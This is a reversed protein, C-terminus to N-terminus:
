KYLNLLLNLIQLEQLIKEYNPIINCLIAELILLFFILIFFVLYFYKESTSFMIRWTKDVNNNYKKFDMDFIKMNERNDSNYEEVKQTYLKRFIREQRLYYSDLYWFQIIVILLAIYIVTKIFIDFLAFILVLITTFITAFWAKMQFSNQGMRTIVNQIIQFYESVATEDVINKSM